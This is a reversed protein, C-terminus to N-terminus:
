LIFNTNKRKPLAELLLLMHFDGKCTNLQSNTNHTVLHKTCNSSLPVQMYELHVDLKSIKPIITVHSGM